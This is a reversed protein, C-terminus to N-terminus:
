KLFLVAFFCNKNSNHQAFILHYNDNEENRVISSDKLNFNDQLYCKIVEQAGDTSADDVIVYVVPFTTQQMCFGHLADTIFSAHNYTLCRTCVLYKNNEIIDM